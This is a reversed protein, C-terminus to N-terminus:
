MKMLRLEKNECNYPNCKEFSISIQICRHFSYFKLINSSFFIQHKSTTLTHIQIEIYTFQYQLDRWIRCTSELDISQVIYNEIQKSSLSKLYLSWKFSVPKCYLTWKIFSELCCKITEFFTKQKWPLLYAVKETCRCLILTQLTLLNWTKKYSSYLTM